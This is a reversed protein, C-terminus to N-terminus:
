RAARDAVALGLIPGITLGFLLWALWWGDEQAAFGWGIGFLAGALAALLTTGIIATAANTQPM